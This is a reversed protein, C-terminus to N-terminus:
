RTDTPSRLDTNGFWDSFFEVFESLAGISAGVLWGFGAVFHIAIRVGFAESYGLIIWSTIM